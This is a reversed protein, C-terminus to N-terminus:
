AGADTEETSDVTAISLQDPPPLFAALRRHREPLVGQPRFWLFAIILLGTAIWELAPVLGPSGFSPIFRTVELFGVPVLIAGIISGKHNGSGGVIVAAILVITEPYLWASPAWLNIFGVLLGGSLGGVAGGVVLIVLRLRDTNKGIAGAVIENERMARLSRGYPSETVLTLVVYVLVAMAIAIGTYYWQYSVSQPNIVGGLPSPVLAVGAAGNLLPRYDNVLSNLMVATVL